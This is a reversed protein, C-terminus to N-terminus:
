QATLHMSIHSLPAGCCARRRAAIAYSPIMVIINHKGVHPILGAFHCQLWYRTVDLQWANGLLNLRKREAERPGLGLALIAATRNPAYGMLRESEVAALRRAVGTRKCVVLNAEAYQYLAQAWADAVWRALTAENCTAIGRPDKMPEARPVHRRLAAVHFSSESKRGKVIDLPAFGEQLIERLDRKQPSALVVTIATTASSQKLIPGPPFSLEQSHWWLRHRLMPVWHEAGLLYPTKGFVSDYYSQDAQEMETCEMIATARGPAHKSFM